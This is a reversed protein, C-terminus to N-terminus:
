RRLVSPYYRELVDIRLSQTRKEPHCVRRSKRLTQKTTREIEHGVFENPNVHPARDKRSVDPDVIRVHAEGLLEFGSL